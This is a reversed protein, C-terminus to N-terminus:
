RAGPAILVRSLIQRPPGAALSAAKALFARAAADTQNGETQRQFAALDAFLLNSMFTAGNLPVVRAYLAAPIGQSNRSKTREELLARLEEGKAPAPQRIVRWVYGAPGANQAPVLERYLAQANPRSILPRMKALFAAQAPDAEQARQFAELSALDQHTIRTALMPEDAFMRAALGHPVGTASRAKVREELLARLEGQKGVAPYHFIYHHYPM